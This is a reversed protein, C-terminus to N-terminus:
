TGGMIDKIQSFDMEISFSSTFDLEAYISERFAVM